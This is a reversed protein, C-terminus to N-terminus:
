SSGGGDSSKDVAHIVEELFVRAADKADKDNSYLSALTYSGMQELRDLREDVEIEKKTRLLM